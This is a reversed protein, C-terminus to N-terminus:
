WRHPRERRAEWACTLQLDSGDLGAAALSRVFGSDAADIKGDTFVDARVQSHDWPDIFDVSSAALSRVLGNDGANVVADGTELPRGFADGLVVSFERETDAIANRVGTLRVHYRTPVHFAFDSGPLRPNFTIVVENALGQSTGITFASLDVLQGNADCAALVTAISGAATVANDYSVVIRSVGALRPEVFSGDVPISLGIEGLPGHTAISYWQQAMASPECEDPVGNGDLDPFGAAVDCDDLIGNENCDPAGFDLECSDPVTNENCDTSYGSVIDCEDPLTNANCDHSTNADIDCEDPLENGNCDSSTGDAFDCLDPAGNENCDEGFAFVYAAGSEAEPAGVVIFGGSAAVSYGFQAGGSMDSALLKSSEAWVGDEQRFLYASGSNCNESTSCADDDQNAGVVLLDGHLSVSFGFHDKRSTDNADTTLFRTWNPPVFRALSVTGADCDADLCADDDWPAGAAILTGSISVSSGLGDYRAIPEPGVIRGEPVWIPPKHRFVYAAGRGLSDTLGFAPAGVVIRDDSVAVSTGFEEQLAGSQIAPSIIKGATLWITGDHRFVYVAGFHSNDNPAGIFILGGEIAVSTGFEDNFDADPATFSAEEVWTGDEWRFVYASGCNEGVACATAPAGVLVRDGDIAIAQGFHADNSPTSATLKAEALWGVGTWRFLYVAGCREDGEEVCSRDHWDAGIAALDGDIAVARGFRDENSGDPITLKELECQARAQGVVSVLMMFGLTFTIIPSPPRLM